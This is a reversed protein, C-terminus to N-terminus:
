FRHETVKRSKKWLKNYNKLFHKNNVRLSMTTNENFKRTYGTMQLLRLCLRRIVDNDNYGLFYKLANKTCYPEKKSVLIKNVDIDDIQFIKKNKYFEKKKKNKQRRFKINKVSMRISQLSFFYFHKCLLKPIRATVM